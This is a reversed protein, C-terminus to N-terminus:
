AMAEDGQGLAVGRDTIYSAGSQEDAHLKHGVPVCSRRVWGECRADDVSQTALTHQDACGPRMRINQLYSRREYKAFSVRIQEEIREILRQGLRRVDDPLARSRDMFCSSSEAADCDLVASTVRSTILPRRRAITSPIAITKARDLMLGTM